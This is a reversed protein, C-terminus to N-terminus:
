APWRTDCLDSMQQEIAAKESELECLRRYDQEVAEREYTDPVPVLFSSMFTQPSIHQIAAGAQLGQLQAQGNPSRLYMLLFEPSISGRCGPKIRLGLCIQSVVMTDPQVDGILGIKGISGKNSVVLDGQALNALGRRQKNIRVVKTPSGAIPSWSFTDAIGVEIREIADEDRSLAPAKLIDCIEGIPVANPGVNVRKQLYRSPTFSIESALLDDRTVRCAREPDDKLGFAVDKFERVLEDVDTLSRKSLGLDVMLLDTNNRGPTVSIIATSIPSSLYAGRPLAVITQLENSGGSRELLHERLRAEQGHSYLVSPPVLFVAKQGTRNLLEQIAWTESRHYRELARDKSSDWQALKSDRVQVRFVPLALVFDAKTLPRGQRDREIEPEVEQIDLKGLEIALLRSPSNDYHPLMQATKVKWGRRLARVTLVGYTDFPIWLSGSPTGLMDLMLEAVEASVVGEASRQNKISELFIPLVDWPQGGMDDALENVIKSAELLWNRQRGLEARAGLVRELADIALGAREVQGWAEENALEEVKGVSPVNGSQVMRAAAIWTLAFSVAAWNDAARLTAINQLALFARPIPLQTHIM